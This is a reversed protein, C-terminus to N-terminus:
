ESGTSTIITDAEYLYWTDYIRCLEAFSDPIDIGEEKTIQLIDRGSRGVLTRLVEPDGDVINTAFYKVEEGGPWGVRRSFLRYM